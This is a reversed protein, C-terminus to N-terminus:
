LVSLVLVSFRYFWFYVVVMDLEWVGGGSGVVGGGNGGEGVVGIVLGLEGWFMGGNGLLKGILGVVSGLGIWLFIWVGLGIVM